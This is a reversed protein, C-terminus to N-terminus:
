SVTITTFTDLTLLREAIQQVDAATVDEVLKKREEPSLLSLGHLFRYTLFAAALHNTQANLTIQTLLRKKALQLDKESIGEEVLRTLETATLSEVRKLNRKDTATHIGWAGADRNEIRMTRIFYVQGAEERVGVFLKGQWSELHEELVSLAYREKDTDAKFRRGLWLHPETVHADAQVRSPEPVPPPESDRRTAGGGETEWEKFSATMDEWVARELNGVAVLTLPARNLVERHFAQMSDFSVPELSEKSGAAPIGYPHGPFLTALVQRLLVLRPSDRNQDLKSIALTKEKVFDEESFRANLAADAILEWATRVEAAPVTAGLILGEHGAAASLEGGTVAMARTIESQTRTETGKLLLEGMLNLWGAKEAGLDAADLHWIVRLAVTRTGPRSVLVARVAPGPSSEIFYADGSAEAM